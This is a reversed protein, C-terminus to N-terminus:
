YPGASKQEWDGGQPRRGIPFEQNKKKWANVEMNEGYAKYRLKNIKKITLMTQQSKIRSCSVITRKWRGRWERGELISM